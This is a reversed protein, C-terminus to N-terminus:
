KRIIWYFLFLIFLFFYTFKSTPSFAYWGPKQSVRVAPSFVAAQPRLQSKQGSLCLLHLLRSSTFLRAPM